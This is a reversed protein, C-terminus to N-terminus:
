HRFHRTKSFVLITNTQNAFKIIEKDRISGSPQIVASIGAQVLKEIGDVFPFFADSAAVVEENFNEFKHMKDIAIQCSDLRSPQGSGIGVTTDQSALVIANSKVYRCVNFAFILNKLQSKNPKKKSVVKFDKINFNKVDDSQALFAENASNFRVLDKIKFDTADVLRLNKKKKLLKIASADFGNAIVVELFINNLEIALAKNIKFNCAVIGGFASVPDCALALKYSKLNDKHISVGCPNAHKVIVTGSNTPLSKSITLASFIDNYNNYSLQKGHIQELNLNHTKSYVAAQQHPNEGYRLKEILNGYIIKKKPFNNNKIKNFYNSIVADYYATESFAELSMKERFVLSTSGKHLNIENILEPYQNSSTIVTVDNYNKAAARVMTPGGVDINEIIKKRNNTEELTKEFPYFNVIVLDIEHFNNNRLEKEHSKNNRKSLIGAHIKPHLTKVRGGLIEPSGTYESVELCKFKLKKIEKYTGGSSILEIKYKTLIKLLDKLNKKDSVSILARKIKKM